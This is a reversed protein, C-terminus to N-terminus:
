IIKNLNKLEQLLELTDNGIITKVIKSNSYFIITPLINIDFVNSLEKHNDIDFIIYQINKYNFIHNTIFTNILNCPNSPNNSSISFLILLVKNESLKNISNLNM